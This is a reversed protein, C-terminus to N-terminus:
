AKLARPMRVKAAATAAGKLNNHLAEAEKNAASITGDTSVIVKVNATSDNAM